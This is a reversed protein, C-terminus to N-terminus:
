MSQGAGCIARSRCYFLFFPRLNYAVKVNCAEYVRLPVVMCDCVLELYVSDAVDVINGKRVVPCPFRTGM